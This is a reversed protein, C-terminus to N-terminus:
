EAHYQNESAGNVDEPGRPLGAEPPKLYGIELLSVSDM